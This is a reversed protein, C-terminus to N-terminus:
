HFYSYIGVYLYYEDDDLTWIRERNIMPIPLQKEVAYFTFLWGEAVNGNQSRM